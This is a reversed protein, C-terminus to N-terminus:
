DKKEGSAAKAAALQQELDKIRAQQDLVIAYCQAKGDAEANRQQQYLPALKAPDFSTQANASACVSVNGLLFAALRVTTM